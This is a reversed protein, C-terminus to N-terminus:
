RAEVPPSAISSQTDHPLPLYELAVPALEDPVHSGHAAPLYAEARPM